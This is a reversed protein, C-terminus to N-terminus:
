LNFISKVRAILEKLPMSGVATGVAKGDKFFVLTPISMVNFRQCLEPEHDVNVKCVKVQPFQEAFQALVPLFAKCPGCWEAWFDVIVPQAAQEVEAAFNATTVSILDSM